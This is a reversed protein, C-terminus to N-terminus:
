KLMVGISFLRESGLGDIYTDEYRIYVRKVSVKLHDIVINIIKDLFTSNKKKMTAVSQNIEFKDLRNQNQKKFNEVEVDEVWDKM